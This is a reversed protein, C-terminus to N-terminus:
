TWWARDAVEDAALADHVGVRALLRDEVRGGARDRALQVQARRGVDVGGDGGRALRKSPQASVGGIRRARTSLVNRASSLSCRSSSAAIIVASCPM